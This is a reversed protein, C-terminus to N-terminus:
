TSREGYQRSGGDVFCAFQDKIEDGKGQQDAKGPMKVLRM